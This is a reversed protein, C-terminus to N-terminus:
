KNLFDSRSTRGSPCLFKFFVKFEHSYISFYKESYMELCGNDVSSLLHLQWEM